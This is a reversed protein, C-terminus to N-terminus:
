EPDEVILSIPLALTYEVGDHTFTEGRGFEIIEIEGMDGHWVRGESDTFSTPKIKKM